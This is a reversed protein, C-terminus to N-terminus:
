GSEACGWQAILISCSTRHTTTKAVHGYTFTKWVQLKDEGESKAFIIFLDGEEVSYILTLEVHSYSKLCPPEGSSKEVSSKLTGDVGSEIFTKQSAHKQMTDFPKKTPSPIKLEFYPM